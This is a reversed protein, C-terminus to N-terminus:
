KVHKEKVGGSNSFRFHKKPIKKTDPNTFRYTSRNADKYLISIKQIHTKKEPIYIEIRNIDSKKSKPTLQYTVGEQSSKIIKEDYTALLSKPDLVMDVIDGLERSFSAKKHYHIVLNDSKKFHSLTKGDFYYTEEGYRKHMFSWKFFNPKSFDASGHRKRTNKRFSSYNEQEFDVSLHQIAAIFNQHKKSVKDNKSYAETTIICFLSLLIRTMSRKM